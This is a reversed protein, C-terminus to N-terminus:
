SIKNNSRFCRNAPHDADGLITHLSDERIHFSCDSDICTIISYTGKSDDILYKGCVPCLGDRLNQWKVKIIEGRENSRHQLIGKYKEYSMSFHCETCDVCAVGDRMGNKLKEECYPYPCNFDKLNNWNM